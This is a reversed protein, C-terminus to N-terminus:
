GWRGALRSPPDAISQFRVLRVADLGRVSDLAMYGQDLIWELDTESLLVEACPKLQKEGDAEYVHLPLGDVVSHSGPRMGWADEAFARALLEVCLFAPCGWLYKAHLPAGPMEEFHFNELPSTERGYPLRLLFRPMALGLWRAVPSRRLEAWQRAGEAPDASGGGPDAEALFPADADRLIGGIRGLMQVDRVTQAFTYNAAVVSWGEVSRDPSEEAMLHRFRDGGGFLDAELLSKSVDAFYVKLRTGTEIERVVHSAARWAAELAQFEPHRLLGRMRRGAEATWAVRLDALESREAPVLFPAVAKEVFEQFDNVPAPRRERLPEDAEVISDLLSAGSAVDPLPPRQPGEPAKPAAVSAAERGNWKRIERAAEDFTAPQELKRKLERLDAFLESQLYIQDPHFDDLERFRIGSFEPALRAMMLDFNDRDIEMAGWEGAVKASAGRGSFDGLLLVRFPTDPEVMLAAASADPDVDLHVTAFSSKITM